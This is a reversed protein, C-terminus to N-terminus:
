AQTPKKYCELQKIKRFTILSFTSTLILILEHEEGRNDTISKM